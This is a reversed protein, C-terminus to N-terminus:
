PFLWRGDVKMGNFQQRLAVAGSQWQLNESEMQSVRTAAQRHDLSWAVAVAALTTVLIMDLITFRFM